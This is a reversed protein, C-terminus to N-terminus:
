LISGGFDILKKAALAVGTAVGLPGTIASGLKSLQSQLPVAATAAQKTAGTLRGLEARVKEAGHQDILFQLEVIPM